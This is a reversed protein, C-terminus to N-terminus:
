CLNGSAGFINCEFADDRGVFGWWWFSGIHVYRFASVGRGSNRHKLVSYGM